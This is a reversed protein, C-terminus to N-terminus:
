AAIGERRINILLPSRVTKYDHTSVPYVSVVTDFELNVAHVLDIMRDIELGPQVPGDPVVAVDIDSSSTAESRAWSGFYYSM